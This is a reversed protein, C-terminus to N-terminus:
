QQSATGSLIGLANEYNRAVQECNTAYQRLVAANQEEYHKAVQECNTVYQRWIATQLEIFPKFSTIAFATLKDGDRDHRRQDLSHNVSQDM